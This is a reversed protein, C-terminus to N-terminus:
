RPGDKESRLIPAPELPSMGGAMAAREAETLEAHKKRAAEALETEGLRAYVRALRYQPKSSQPNLEVARELAARADEYRKLRELLQGLEFHSEWFDGRLEISQRLLTEAQELAEGAEGPASPPLSSLLAQAHVFPALYNDPQAEAFATQRELIEAIRDGSHEIMRSLFYHPQPAAPVLESARLFADLADDFRRLGYLATGRALEIRPSKDFIKRAEALVALAEEFRSAQLHAHSLNYRYDEDYPRMRVAQEFAAVAEDFRGLETQAKGEIDYLSAMERRELGSRAFEVARAPDGADLYFAAARGFGTIDDPFARAYGAEFKAAEEYDGASEFYVSLGRLLRPEDSAMEAVKAIVTEADPARESVRYAAALALLVRGNDAELRQAAELEAVAEAAEGRQLAQLGAELREEATQAPM